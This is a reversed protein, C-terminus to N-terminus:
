ITLCARSISIGSFQICLGPIKGYGPFPSLLGIAPVRLIRQLLIRRRARKNVPLVFILYYISLILAVFYIDPSSIGVVHAADFCDCRTAANESAAHRDIKSGHFSCYYVNERPRQARTM